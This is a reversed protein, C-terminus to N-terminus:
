SPATTRTAATNTSGFVASEHLTGDDCARISPIVTVVVHDSGTPPIVQIATGTSCTTNVTTVDSYGVNFYATDRPALVVTSPGISEFSLGGGRVTNTPVAVGTPGLLLLGPYGYLTCPASSTNTLAFTREGTGMQGSSGSQVIRLDAAGCKSSVTTTPAATTTTVVPATETPATARGVLFTALGVAAVAVVVLATRYLREM